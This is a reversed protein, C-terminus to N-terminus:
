KKVKAATKKNKTTKAKKQRLTAAKKTAKLRHTQANRADSVNKKESAQRRVKLSEIQTDRAGTIIATALSPCARMGYCVLAFSFKSLPGCVSSSVVRPSSSGSSTAHWLLLLLLLRAACVVVFVRRKAHGGTGPWRRGTGALARCNPAFYLLSYRRAPQNFGDICFRLSYRRHISSPGDVLRDIACQRGIAAGVASAGGGEPSRAKQRAAAALRPASVRGPRPAIPVPRRRRANPAPLSRRRREPSWRHTDAPDARWHHKSRPRRREHATTALTFLHLTAGAALVLSESSSSPPSGPASGPAMTFVLIVADRRRRAWTFFCWFARRPPKAGRRRSSLEPSAGHSDHQPLATIGGLFFIFGACKEIAGGSPRGLQFLSREIRQVSRDTGGRYQVVAM